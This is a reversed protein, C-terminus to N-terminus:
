SKATEKAQKEAAAITKDIDKKDGPLIIGASVVLKVGEEVTMDLVHVDKRPVFLLFGSTPNPTTPVFVNVTEQSTARQVEGKTTATIFGICWIGKRPYEFLIVERFANSQTALVTEFIQKTAGYLSRIVPMRDLLNESLRIFFRGFFNATIMGIFILVLLVIM